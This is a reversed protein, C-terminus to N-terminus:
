ASDNLKAEVKKDIYRQVNTPLDVQQEDFPHARGHARGFNEYAEEVPREDEEEDRHNTAEFDPNFMGASNDPPMGSM